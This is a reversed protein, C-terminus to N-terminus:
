LVGPYVTKEDNKFLVPNPNVVRMGPMPPLFNEIGIIKALDIQWIYESPNSVKIM